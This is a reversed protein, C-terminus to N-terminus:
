FYKQHLHYLLIQSEFQLWREIQLSVTWFLKVRAVETNEIM